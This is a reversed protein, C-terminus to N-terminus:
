TMLWQPRSISYYTYPKRLVIFLFGTFHSYTMIGVFSVLKLEMAHNNWMSYVNAYYSDPSTCITRRARLQNSSSSSLRRACDVAKIVCDSTVRHQNIPLDHNPKHQQRKYCSDFLTTGYSVINQINFAFWLTYRSCNCDVNGHWWMTKKVLIAGKVTDIPHLRKDKDKISAGLAVRKSYKLLFEYYLVVVCILDHGNLLYITVWKQPKNMHM